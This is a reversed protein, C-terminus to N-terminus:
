VKFYIFASLCKCNDNEAKIAIKWWGNCHASLKRCTGVECCVFSLHTDNRHQKYKYPFSSFSSFVSFSLFAHRLWENMGKFRYMNMSVIHLNDVLEQQLSYLVSCKAHLKFASIFLSFLDGPPFCIALIFADRIANWNLSRLWVGIEILELVWWESNFSVASLLTM